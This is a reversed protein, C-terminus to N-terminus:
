AELQTIANTLNRIVENYQKSSNRMYKSSTTSFSKCTSKVREHRLNRDYLFWDMTEIHYPGKTM